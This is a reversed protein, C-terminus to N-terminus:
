IEKLFEKREEYSMSFMSGYPDKIEWNGKKCDGNDDPFKDKVRLIVGEPITVLNRSFSKIVIVEWSGTDNM